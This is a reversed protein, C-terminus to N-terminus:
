KKVRRFRKFRVLDIYFNEEDMSIRKQRAVFSFGKGLELLFGQLHEILASELDSEFLKYNPMLNLFELIYPDKVLDKVTQVKQGTKAIKMM